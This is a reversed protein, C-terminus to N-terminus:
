ITHDGRGRFEGRENSRWDDEVRGKKNVEWRVSCAGSSHVGMDYQGGQLLSCGSPKGSAKRGDSARGERVDPNQVSTGATHGGLSWLEGSWFTRRDPTAVSFVRGLQIFM